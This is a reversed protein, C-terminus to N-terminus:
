LIQDKKSLASCHAMIKSLKSTSDTLFFNDTYMLLPTNFMFLSPFINLARLATPYMKTKFFSQSYLEAPEDPLVDENKTILNELTTDITTRYLIVNFLLHLTNDNFVAEPENHALLEALLGFHRQYPYLMLAMLQEHFAKFLNLALKWLPQTGTLPYLVKNTSQLTGEVNIFFAKQEFYSCCPLMLSQNSPGEVIQPAVFIYKSFFGTYDAPNLSLNFCYRIEAKVHSELLNVIKRLKTKKVVM